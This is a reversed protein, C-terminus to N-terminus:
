RTGLSKADQDWRHRHVWFEEKSIKTPQMLYYWVGPIHKLRRHITDIAAFARGRAVALISPASAARAYGFSQMHPGVTWEILAVDRATLEERWKGLREMTVPGRSLRGWPVYGPAPHGPVLMDPVYDEGLHACIRGLEREPQAVLTEYRVLLYGPRHASRRAALNCALWTQANTVVSNAAWPMRQLSAVADRPDRLVHLIAAGPYWECLLESILAHQPTKEGWRPKGASEAYYRLLCAFMAPYSTAEALLKEKLGSLDMGLRQVRRVLLYEDVLRRRNKLNELDGFARRRKYVYHNFQTEGCIALSPHRNLINRLLTTGSRPSGVIFVPPKGEM